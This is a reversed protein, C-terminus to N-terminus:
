RGVRPATAPPPTATLGPIGGIGPPQPQLRFGPLGPIGIGGAPTAAPTAGFTAPSNPVPASAEPDFAPSLVREGEPGHVTVQGDRISKVTFAGIQGGEGVVVPKGGKDAAFIARRGAPTVFVGAIRPLGPAPAAPGAAAAAPPRRGPSFLPRALVTAALRALQDRDPAVLRGTAPVVAGPAPAVMVESDRSRGRLELWITAVLAAALLALLVPALRGRATM